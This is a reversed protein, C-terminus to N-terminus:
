TTFRGNLLVDVGIYDVPRNGLLLLCEYLKDFIYQYLDTQM